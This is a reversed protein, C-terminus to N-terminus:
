RVNDDKAYSVLVLMYEQAIEPICYLIPLQLVRAM